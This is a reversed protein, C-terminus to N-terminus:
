ISGAMSFGILETQDGPKKNLPKALSISIPAGFFPLKFSVKVGASYRIDSMNVRDQYINGGAVILAIRLNHSIPNPIILDLGGIIQVNGGLGDGNADVPGLTNPEFGPVTGIGGAYYNLFFPLSGTSGIGNGYGLQTHPNLIFGHSGLPLYYSAQYNLKYYKLSNSDLPFSVSGGLSSYLGSDPFPQQDYTLYTWGLGLTGEDFRTGHKDLFQMFSAPTQGDIGTVRYHDYGLSLSYASQDSLPFSYNVAGGYGDQNYDALNVSGPTVKSYYGSFGRGIGSPTYNPNFYNATYSTYYSSRSFNFGVLNGTGAFNPMSVGAGYMFGYVDSYGGNISASGATIEQVHYNLDVQNPKNPVPITAVQINGLYGLNRLHRTSTNVKSLSFLSDEFQTIQSRIVNQDTHSNGIINIRRVYVRRGPNIQYVINVLHRADNLQPITRIEPFAYGQDAIYDSIKKTVAIIKARSFVQGPRVTILQRMAAKQGLPNGAIRISGIRYVSGESVRVTIYVKAHDPSMSVQSSVVKFRLYGHDFYFNGLSQLDTDLKEKSYRDNHTFFSFLGSKSLKFNKLLTHESFHQNGLIQVSKVKAIPGEQIDFVLATRGHRSKTIESTVKADFYGMMYYEQQLGATMLRIQSSNYISGLDVGMKKLAKKLRKTSIAKNGKFTILSIIPREQVQIILTGGRRSLAVNSFFNTRYLAEIIEGGRKPTYKEGRHVPLYSMVTGKHIRQLGQVQIQDIVFGNAAWLPSSVLILVLFSLFTRKCKTMITM